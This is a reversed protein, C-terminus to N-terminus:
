KMIEGGLEDEVDETIDKCIDDTKILLILSEKDM